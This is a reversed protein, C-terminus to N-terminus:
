CFYRGLKQTKVDTGKPIRSAQIILRKKTIFIQLATKIQLSHVM